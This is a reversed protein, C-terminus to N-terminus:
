YLDGDFIYPLAVRKQGVIVTEGNNDTVTSQNDIIDFRNNDGSSTGSYKMEKYVLHMYDITLYPFVKIAPVDRIDGDFEPHELKRAGTLTESFRRSIISSSNLMRSPPASAGSAIPIKNFLNSALLAGHQPFQSRFKTVSPDYSSIITNDALEFPNAATRYFVM